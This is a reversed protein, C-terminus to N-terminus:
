KQTLEEQPALSEPRIDAIIGRIVAMRIKLPVRVLKDAELSAPNGEQEDKRTLYVEWSKVLYSITENLDTFVKAFKKVLESDNTSQEVVAQLSYFNLLKMFVDETVLAPSYEIIASNNKNYITITATDEAMSEVTIPM